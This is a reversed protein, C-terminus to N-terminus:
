FALTYLNAPGNYILLGLRLVDRGILVRYPAGFGSFDSEIISLTDVVTVFIGPQHGPIGLCLEFQRHEAPIQGTSPTHIQITGIPSLELQEVIRTDIM